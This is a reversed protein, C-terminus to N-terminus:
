HGDAAPAYAEEWASLSRVGDFLEDYTQIVVDKLCNRFLEFSEEQQPSFAEDELDGILLFVRPNVVRLGPSGYALSRLERQLSERYALVQIIAGSLVQSPPYMSRYRSGLLRAQPTKIEVLVTNSKQRLLFDAVNGGHNDIAKGGVYCKSNLIFAGGNTAAALLEPQSGFLQHWYEESSNQREREWISIARERRTMGVLPHPSSAARPASATVNTLHRERIRDLVEAPYDSPNRDVLYHHIPCLLM